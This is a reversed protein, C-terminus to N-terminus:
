WSTYWAKSMSQKSLAFSPVFFPLVTCLPKHAGIGSVSSSSVMSWRMLSPRFMMSSWEAGCCRNSVCRRMGNNRMGRSAESRLFCSNLILEQVTWWVPAKKNCSDSALNNSSTIPPASQQSVSPPRSAGKTGAGGWSTCSRSARSCAKSRSNGPSAGSATSMPRFRSSGGAAGMDGTGSMPSSGFPVGAFVGNAPRPRAKTLAGSGEPWKAAADAAAAASGHAISSSCWATPLSMGISTPLVLLRRLALFNNALASPSGSGLEASNVDSTSSQDTEDPTEPIAGM